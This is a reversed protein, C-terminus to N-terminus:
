LTIFYTRLKKPNLRTTNQYMNLMSPLNHALSQHKYYTRFHPIEWVDKSRTHIDTSRLTLFALSSLLNKVETSSFFFTQLLRYKYLNDVRIINFSVFADKTSATPDINGIYRIVKKQLLHLKDLNTKTTTAWVLSCYNLYSNFLANYVQLKAKVPLLRRCRSIMGAVSSLKKRLYHTHADWSLNQSFHVGLIKHVDVIEINHCQFNISQHIEVPKNRARFIMAKTKMTNIKIVNLQSWISLKQLVENCKIILRDVNYEPILITSDDAYIIFQVTADINVLDNIYTNFLLPGLISGQPVGHTIPLLSSMYGNVYVCQTRHSLYSELLALCNGRIGYSQLKSLLVKHHLCDFAKSFDVFLAATLLNNEINRLINEKLALLASETSRGKRFGYQAATIVNEKDFFQTIRTFIIKEIGKSFIPLVSIPRYNTSLNREGGKFIVSVRATKMQEPFTGSELILNFIHALVPSIIPLVYKVPRIQLDHIDLAKSNRLCMFTSYIESEDTPQLFITETVVSHHSNTSPTGNCAAAANVFQHNFHEVLAKDRLENGDVMVTDPMYNKSERGLVDNMAKWAIDPSQRAVHAFLHEYYACKARRLESNVENRVKKFEKLTTELRTKLFSHYLRNKNTIKKLHDRTVWPKRAKKSPKHMKLPFHRAYVCVFRTIFENYADNVDMKNTVPSWDQSLIDQQFAQLGNQTIHQAIFSQKQKISKPSHTSYAMFVPCHDSIDSVITGSNYVTTDINTVLLDLVSSTTRTIRTPTIILNKFGSSVLIDNFEFVSNCEELMNINFDGACILRLNNDCVYDLFSEYFEMFRAINGSPPRYLVSIVDSRNKVTVIEYDDTVTSFDSVLCCNKTKKVLVAVGGGRREPRNLFFNDYGYINVMKCDTSYWTESIMLIDVKFRFQDLLLAIDDEKNGVSRANIHIVSECLPFDCKVETPLALEQYNMTCSINQSQPTMM